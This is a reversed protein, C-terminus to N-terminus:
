ETLFKLRSDDYKLEQKVKPIAYRTWLLWTWGPCHGKGRSFGFDREGVVGSPFIVSGDKRLRLFINEIM